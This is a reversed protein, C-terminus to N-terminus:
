QEVRATRTSSLRGDFFSIGIIRIQMPYTSKVTVPTGPAWVSTTTVKVDTPALTPAADQVAKTVIADRNSLSRSLTATRAGESTAASLQQFTWFALGFQVVAFLILCLLPLLLAFEVMAQGDERSARSHKDTQITTSHMEHRKSTSASGSVVPPRGLGGGM